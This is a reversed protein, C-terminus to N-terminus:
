AMRERRREVRQWGLRRGPVRLRAFPAHVLADTVDDLRLFSAEGAPNPDQEARVLGVKPCPILHSNGLLSLIALSRWRLQTVLQESHPLVADAHNARQAGLLQLAAAHM